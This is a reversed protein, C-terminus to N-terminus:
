QIERTAKTIAARAKSLFDAYLNEALIEHDHGEIIDLLAVVSDLLDPAAAILRANALPEELHPAHAAVNVNAITLPGQPHDLSRSDLVRLTSMSSDFEDQDYEVLWPGPAHKNM